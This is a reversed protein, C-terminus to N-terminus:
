RADYFHADPGLSPMAAYAADRILQHRFRFADASPFVSSRHPRILEKRVLLALAPAVEVQEPALERWDMASM